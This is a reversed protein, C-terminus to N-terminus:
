RPHSASAKRVDPPARFTRRYASPSVNLHRQFHQRLLSGNTFGTRSAIVDVPLDTTELLARADALRRLTLWRLPTVGMERVFLRGFTRTSMAARDALQPITLPEHLRQMAWELVPALGDPRVSAPAPVYQAQDGERHPAIVMRRGVEAAVAAGFEQRVIHLCLDIAAATGASTLIDGNDVYLAKENVHIRPYRRRLEEAYVWHTTVEYGDLLGAAALVFVGSCLSAIRAGNAHAARLASVLERPPEYTPGACAPVVVLDASRMVELGNRAELLLGTQAPYQGPIAQCLVMEYWEPALDRRDRGFVECPVALEFLPCGELM